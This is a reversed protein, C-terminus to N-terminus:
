IDYVRISGCHLDILTKSTQTNFEHKVVLDCKRLVRVLKCRQDLADNATNSRGKTDLLNTNLDSMM